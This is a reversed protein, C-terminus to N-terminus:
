LAASPSSYVRYHVDNSPRIDIRVAPDDAIKKEVVGAILYDFNKQNYRKFEPKATNRRHNGCVWPVYVLGLRAKM